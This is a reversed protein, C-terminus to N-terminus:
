DGPNIEANKLMRLVKQRDDKIGKYSQITRMRKGKFSALVVSGRLERDYGSGDKTIEVGVIANGGLDVAHEQLDKLAEGKKYGGYIFGIVAGVEYAESVQNPFKSTYIRVNKPEIELPEAILHGFGSKSKYSRLGSCGAMLLFSSSLIIMLLKIKM